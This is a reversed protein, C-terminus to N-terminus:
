FNAECGGIVRRANRRHWTREDGQMQQEDRADNEEGVMRCDEHANQEDEQCDSRGVGLVLVPENQALAEQHSEEKRAKDDDASHLCPPQLGQKSL